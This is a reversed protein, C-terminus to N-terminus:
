LGSRNLRESSEPGIGSWLGGGYTLLCAGLLSRRRGWSPGSSTSSFSFIGCDILVRSEVSKSKGDTDRLLSGVRGDDVLAEGDRSVSEVSDPTWTRHIARVRM